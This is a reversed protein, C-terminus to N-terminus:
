CLWFSVAQLMRIAFQKFQECVVSDVADIYMEVFKMLLHCMNSTVKRLNATIKVSQM